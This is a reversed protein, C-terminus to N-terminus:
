DGVIRNGMQALDNVTYLPYTGIENGPNVIVRNTSELYSVYNDVECYIDFEKLDIIYAYKSGSNKNWGSLILKNQHPIIKCVTNDQSAQKINDNELNVSDYITGDKLGVKYLISDNCLLGIFEDSELEIVSVIPSKDWSIESKLEGTDTDFRRIFGDNFVMVIDGNNLWRLTKYKNIDTQIDLSVSTEKNIDFIEFTCDSYYEIEALVKESKDSCFTNRIYGKDWKQDSKQKPEWTIFQNTEANFVSIKYSDEQFILMKEINGIRNSFNNISRLYDFKASYVNEGSHIDFINITKGSEVVALLNDSIFMTDTIYTNDKDSKEFLKYQQKSNVDYIYLSDYCDIAMYTQSNNLVSKSVAEDYTNWKQYNGNAADCYLYVENSNENSVAYKQNFYAYKQHTNTFKHVQYMVRKAPQLETEKIGGLPVAIENGSSTIVFLARGSQNCYSEKIASDFKYSYINKGTDTNILEATDGTIVATMNCYNDCIESDLEMIRNHGSTKWNNEYISAWQINDEDDFMIVEIATEYELIDSFEQVLYLHNNLLKLMSLYVNDYKTSVSDQKSDYIIRKNELKDNIIDYCILKNGYDYYYIKDKTIELADSLAFYDTYDVKLNREQEGTNRDFINVEYGTKEYQQNYVIDYTIINSDNVYTNLGDIKWKVEGSVGDLKYVAKSTDVLIDTGSTPVENFKNKKYGELYNCRNRWYSGRQTYKYIGGFQEYIGKDDFYIKLSGHAGFDANSYKKKLIGNASDWFYVGDSDTAVVTKGNGAFGMQTVAYDCNLKTVSSFNEKNFAGVQKALTNVAASIVPRDEGEAPLASLTTKIAGIGDGTDWLKESLNVLNKSNETQALRTKENAEAENAQAVRM